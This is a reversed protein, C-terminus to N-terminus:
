TRERRWRRYRDLGMSALAFVVVVVAEVLLWLWGYERLADRLPSSPAPHGADAAKQELVPVVAYALATIVFLVSALNLFLYFWNRPEAPPADPTSPSAM